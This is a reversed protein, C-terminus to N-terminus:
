SRFVRSYQTEHKMSAIDSFLTSSGFDDLSAALAREATESIVPM